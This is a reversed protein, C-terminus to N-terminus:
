WQSTLTFPVRLPAVPGGRQGCIEEHVLYQVLMCPVPPVDALFQRLETTSRLRLVEGNADCLSYPGTDTLVRLVNFGGELLLVELENIDRASASKILQKLNM